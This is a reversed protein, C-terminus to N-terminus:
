RGRTKRNHEALAKAVELVYAEDTYTDTTEGDEHNLLKQTLFRSDTSRRFQVALTRRLRHLHMRSELGALESLEHLKRDCRKYAAGTATWDNSRSVIGAVLQSPPSKKLLAYLRRWEEEAARVSYLIDKGGKVRIITLGDERGFAATLASKPTRLVDAVRLASSCLVDIVRAPPSDDAEVVRLFAKWEDDPISVAEKLRKPEAKRRRRRNTPPPAPPPEPAPLTNRRDEFGCFDAWLAHAYLYDKYRAAPRQSLPPSTGHTRMTQVDSVAKRATTPSLHEHQELWKRFRVLEETM